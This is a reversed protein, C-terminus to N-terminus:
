RNQSPDIIELETFYTRFFGQDRTLLRDASVQAHAGILFDPIVRTRTGGTQRYRRWMQAALGAAQRTTPSFEAGLQAIATEAAESSPFAVATEAWTVDSLLLQGETLCRTLAQASAPGYLPDPKFVDFLVNTDVATIM